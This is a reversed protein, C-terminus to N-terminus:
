GTESRDGARFCDPLWRALAHIRHHVYFIIQKRLNERTGVLATVSFVATLGVANRGGRLLVSTEPIELSARASQRVKLDGISPSNRERTPGVISALKNARLCTMLARGSTRFPRIANLIRRQLVM